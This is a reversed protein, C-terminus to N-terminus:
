TTEKKTAKTKDATTKKTSSNADTKDSKATSSKKDTTKKSKTTKAPKKDGDVAVTIIASRKRYPLARGHAAPRYRKLDFGPGVSIETIRLSDGDLGHNNTANASVSKILKAVPVAARRPTHELIVQADAVTRGRILAVVEGIKRPSMRINKVTATVSM